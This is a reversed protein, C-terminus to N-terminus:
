YSTVYAFYNHFIYPPTARVLNLQSLIPVLVSYRVKLNWLIKRLEQTASHKSAESFSSPEM